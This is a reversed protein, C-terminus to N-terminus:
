AAEYTGSFTLVDNTTWTMPVTASIHAHRGHTAAHEQVVVQTATTNAFRVHAVFNSVGSDLITASGFVTSATQIAESSATVPLSITPATGDITTTSGFVLKFKAMVLKGYEIYRAEVTGNGLTINTYTPTWTKYQKVINPEILDPDVFRWGVKIARPDFDSGSEYDPLAPWVM